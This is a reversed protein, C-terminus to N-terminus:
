NSKGSIMVKFLSEMTKETQENVEESKGYKNLLKNQNDSEVKAHFIPANSDIWIISCMFSIKDNYQESVKLGHM